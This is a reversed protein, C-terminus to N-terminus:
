PQYEPEDIASGDPRTSGVIQWVDVQETAGQHWLVWAKDRHLGLVTHTGKFDEFEDGVILPRAAITSPLQICNNPAAKCPPRRREPSM